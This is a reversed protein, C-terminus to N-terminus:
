TTIEQVLNYGSIWPYWLYHLAASSRKSHYIFAELTPEFDILLTPDSNVTIEAKMKDGQSKFWNNMWCVVLRKETYFHIGNM